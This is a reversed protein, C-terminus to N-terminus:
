TEGAHMAEYEPAETRWIGIGGVEWGQEVHEGDADTKLQKETHLQWLISIATNLAMYRKAVQYQEEKYTEDDYISFDFDKEAIGKFRELEQAVDGITMHKLAEFDEADYTKVWVEAIRM